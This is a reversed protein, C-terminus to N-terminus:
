CHSLVRSIIQKIALLHLLRGFDSPERVGSHDAQEADEPDDISTEDEEGDLGYEYFTGRHHDHEGGLHALLLHQAHDGLQDRKRCYM